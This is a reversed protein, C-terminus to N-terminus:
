LAFPKYYIKASTSLDKLGGGVFNARPLFKAFDALYVFGHYVQWDNTTYSVVLMYNFQLWNVLFAFITKQQM